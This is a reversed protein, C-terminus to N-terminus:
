KDGRRGASAIRVHAELGHKVDAARAGNQARFPHDGLKRLFERRETELADDAHEGVWSLGFRDERSIGAVLAEFHLHNGAAAPEVEARPPNQALQERAPPRRENMAVSVLLIEIAQQGTGAEREDCRVMQPLQGRARKVDIRRDVRIKESAEVADDGDGVRDSRM